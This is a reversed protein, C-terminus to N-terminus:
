RRERFIYFLLPDPAGVDALISWCLLHNAIGSQAGANLVRIHSARKRV